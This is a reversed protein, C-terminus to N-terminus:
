GIVVLHKYNRLDTEKIADRVMRASVTGHEPGFVVAVPEVSGNVLEAEAHIFRGKAPPRIREFSIFRNGPLAFRPSRRLIALIREHYSLGDTVIDDAKPEDPGAVAPITAEFTFPGAVRVVKSIEEPRDVLVEQDPEENNAISRLTVHPVIGGMEEG